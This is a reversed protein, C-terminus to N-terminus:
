KSILFFLYPFSYFPPVIIFTGVKIIEAIIIAIKTKITILSIFFAFLPLVDQEQPHESQEFQGFFYYFIGSIFHSKKNYSISKLMRIKLLKKSQKKQM